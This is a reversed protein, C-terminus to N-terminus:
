KSMLKDVQFELKKYQIEGGVPNKLKERSKRQRPPTVNSTTPLQTSQQHQHQSGLDGLDVGPEYVRQAGISTSLDSSQSESEIDGEELRDPQNCVIDFALLSGLSHGYLHM